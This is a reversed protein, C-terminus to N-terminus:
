FTACVGFLLTHQNTTMPQIYLLSLSLPYYLAHTLSPPLSPRSHSLNSSSLPLLPFTCVGATSHSRDSGTCYLDGHGVWAAKSVPQSAETTAIGLAHANLVRCYMCHSHYDPGIQLHRNNETECVVKYQICHVNTGKGDNTGRPIHWYWHAIIFRELFCTLENVRNLCAHVYMPRIHVHSTYNGQAVKDKADHISSSWM